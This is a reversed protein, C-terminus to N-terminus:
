ASHLNLRAVQAVAHGKGQEIPSVDSTTILCGMSRPVMNFFTLARLYLDLCSNEASRLRMQFFQKLYLLPGTLAKEGGYLIGCRDKSGKGAQGLIM